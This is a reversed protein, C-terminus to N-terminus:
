RNCGISFTVNISVYLVISVNLTFYCRKTGVSAASDAMKTRHSPPRPPNHSFAAAGITYANLASLSSVSSVALRQLSAALHSASISCPCSQPHLLQRQSLSRFGHMNITNIYIIM